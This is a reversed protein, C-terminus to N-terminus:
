GERERKFDEILNRLYVPNERQLGAIEKVAINLWDSDSYIDALRFSLAGSQKLGFLEGPGRLKLDQEAIYFGDNSQKLVELRKAALDSRSANVFMAYSQESGRGVRGRLQHLQALGFREANEVLMVTANPVNVGVEIVTTSVLIDVRGKKFEDMIRNKSAPPMSGHLSAIEIDSPMIARLREAYQLVNQLEGEEDEEIMPCVIYCQRRERVQKLLFENIAKRHGENLIANKIPLRNSPLEDMVSLDLNGYLMVALTRPIPTASMILTHVSEAKESLRDRQKVGFRHQEDTIVLGLRAFELKDQILAHTGIVMDTEQSRVGEYVLKKQKATMSGTLLEVKISLGCDKILGTVTEFHQVALVETPAMFASQYGNEYATIMTLIAVITKGSGVDGQLLRNMPNGANMSHRIEDLARKQVGTLEYPLQKVLRDTVKKLPMPKENKIKKNEEKFGILNVLFVFFEDFVIRNKAAKLEAENVSLHIKSVAESRPMLGYRQIIGSKLYEPYEKELDMLQLALRISQILLTNNLGATLSYVPCLNKRMEKYKEPEFTKPQMMYLRVNRISIKGYFVLERETKLTSKLYPMNFWSCILIRGNRDSVYAHFVTKGGRARVLETRKVIGQVAVNEGPKIASLEMPEGMRIYARPYHGILDDVTHINLKHFLSQLKTGIGKLMIIEDRKKM